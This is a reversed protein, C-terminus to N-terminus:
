RCGVTKAIYISVLVPFFVHRFLSNETIRWRSHEVMIQALLRASLDQKEMYCDLLDLTWCVRKDVRRKYLLTSYLTVRESLCIRVVELPVEFFTGWFRYLLFVIWLHCLFRFARNTPEPDELVWASWGRVRITEVIITATWDIRDSKLNTVQRIKPPCFGSGNEARKSFFNWKEFLELIEGRVWCGKAMGWQRTPWM